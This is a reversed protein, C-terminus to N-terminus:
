IVKKLKETLLKTAEQICKEVSDFNKTQSQGPTGSKGYTVTFTNGSTEINWFKDSQNDQFTLQHKM